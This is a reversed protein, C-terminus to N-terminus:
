ESSVPLTPSSICCFWGKSICDLRLHVSCSNSANPCLNVRGHAPLCGASCKVRIHIQWPPCGLFWPTCLSLERSQLPFFSFSPWLYCRLASTLSAPLLPLAKTERPLQLLGGCYQHCSVRSISEKVIRSVPLGFDADSHQFSPRPLITSGTSAGAPFGDRGRRKWSRVAAWTGQSTAAVSWDELDADKLSERCWRCMGKEEAHGGTFEREAERTCSAHSQM